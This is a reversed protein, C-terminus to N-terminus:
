QGNLFDEYQQVEEETLVYMKINGSSFDQQLAPERDDISQLCLGFPLQNKYQRLLNPSICLRMGSLTFELYTLETIFWGYQMPVFEIAFVIVEGSPLVLTQQQKADDSINTVRFM